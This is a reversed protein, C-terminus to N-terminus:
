FSLGGLDSLSNVSKGLVAEQDGQVESAKTDEPRVTQTTGAVPELLFMLNVFFFFKSIAM